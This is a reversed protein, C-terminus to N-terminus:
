CASRFTALRPTLSLFMEVIRIWGTAHFSSPREICNSLRVDTKYPVHSPKSHGM